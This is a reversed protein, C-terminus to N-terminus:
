VSSEKVIDETGLWSYRREWVTSRINVSFERNCPKVLGKGLNFIEPQSICDVGPLEFRGTVQLM